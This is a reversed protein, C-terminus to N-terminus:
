ISANNQLCTFLKLKQQTWRMKHRLRLFFFLERLVNLTTNGVSPNRKVINRTRPNCMECLMAKSLICTVILIKFVRSIKLHTLLVHTILLHLGLDGDNLKELVHIYNNHLSSM